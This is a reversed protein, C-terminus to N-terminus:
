QGMKKMLMGSMPSSKVGEVFNNVALVIDALANNTWTLQAGLADVKAELRVIAAMAVDVTVPVVPIEISSAPADVGRYGRANHAKLHPDAQTM